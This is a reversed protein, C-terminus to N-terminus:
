HYLKCSTCSHATRNLSAHATM